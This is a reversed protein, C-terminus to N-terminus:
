RGGRQWPPPGTEGGFGRSLGYGLRQAFTPEEEMATVRKDLDTIGAVNAANLRDRDFGLSGDPMREVAHGYLPSQAADQAMVGVRPETDQGFQQAAEPRYRYEYPQMPGTLRGDDPGPNWYRGGETTLGLRGRMDSYGQEYPSPPREQIAGAVGESARWQDAKAQTYRNLLTRDDADLQEYPLLGMTVAQDLEAAREPISQESTYRGLAAAFEPTPGEQPAGQQPAYGALAEQLASTGGLPRIDEKARIDSLMAGGAGVAGQALGALGQANKNRVQEQYRQQAMQGEFGQTAQMGAAQQELQARQIAAQQNAESMMQSGVDQAQFRNLATSGRAAGMGAMQRAAQEQGMQLQGQIATAGPETQMPVPQVAQINGANRHGMLARGITRVPRFAM